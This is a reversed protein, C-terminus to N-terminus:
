SVMKYAYDCIEIAQKIANDRDDCFHITVGYKDQYGYLTKLIYKGNIRLEKWKEKPITSRKPFDLVDQISFECIIHAYRVDAMRKLEDEFRIRDVGINIAIEATTKKREIVLIDEMGEITYDGTYLGKKIIGDCQEYFDFEWPMQERTDVIIKYKGM